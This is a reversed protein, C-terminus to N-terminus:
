PLAPEPEEAEEANESVGGDGLLVSLDDAARNASDDNDKKKPRPLIRSM